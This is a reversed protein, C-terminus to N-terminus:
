ADHGPYSCRCQQCWCANYSLCVCVFCLLRVCEDSPRHRVCRQGIISTNIGRGAKATCNRPLRNVDDETPIVKGSFHAVETVDSVAKYKRRKLRRLESLLM